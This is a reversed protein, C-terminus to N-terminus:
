PLDSYGRFFVDFDYRFYDKDDSSLNQQNEVVVTHYSIDNVTPYSSRETLILREAEDIIDQFEVAGSVGASVSDGPFDTADRHAAEIRCNVGDEVRHDYETGVPTTTKDPSSSVSIVHSDTLDYPVRRDNFSTSDADDRDIFVPQPAANSDWNSLWSIVKEVLYHDAM